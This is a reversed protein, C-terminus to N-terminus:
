AGGNGGPRYPPPTMIMASVEAPIGGIPDHRSPMGDIFPLLQQKAIEFVRRLEQVPHPHADVRIDLWAFAEKHFVKLSASQKGRKDGGAAQGAELVLMLREHLDFAESRAAAAAMAEITAAGVLMNGQVTFGDGEIHGAWDVCESGTYAATRGERDVIGLQRVARGPDEAILKDLAEKASLGGRLLALGEIGLYPNVWSQTAIAGIGPEIFPCIGGVAPVATSVAVGLRGSRPCRAAISFTNLEIM